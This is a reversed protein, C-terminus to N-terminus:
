NWIKEVLFGNATRAIWVTMKAWGVTFNETGNSFIQRWFTKIKLNFIEKELIKIHYLFELASNDM